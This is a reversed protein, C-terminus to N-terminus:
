KRKQQRKMAENEVRKRLNDMWASAVGGGGGPGSKPPNTKALEDLKDAHARIWRSELIGLTSNTIFYIVLGSPANYMMVPFMVVTMIKVMKQQMEQEPTLASSPPPTLYKQQVFFVLGMVLPLVNLGTIHGLLPISLVSKGFYVFHDAVSLDALFDWRGGTAAQFVGFYGPEHRLEFSFYLMAYLAFWIPSQLFMPLCGLMGSYNVKEDKMLQLMEAQLKKPDDKFKERLKAQKPALGAMQKSFRMLGIQSRRTVPHLVARVCVVLLMISIAWDGIIGHVFTLFWLLGNALWQFTCCACPGGLNYIVVQDLGLAKYRPAGPTVLQQRGLPGAYASFSLDASAGAKVEVPASTLQLLLKASAADGSTGRVVAHVEAGLPFGKRLPSQTFNQVNAAAAQDDVLPSIAFAFYRSTQALWVLEGAGNKYLDPNPWLHDQRSGVVQDIIAARGALKADAEVFQRSPDRTPDQLYGFRVRRMDLGYGSIDEHLEIPGYQVWELRLDRGSLNEVSQRVAISFSGPTQEYRRRIKLVPADAEDAVTAEFEGMGVERWVPAAATGYLDVLEGDIIVARASLSTLVEVRGDPYTIRQAQQVEYHQTKAVTEFYDAMTITQVGAGLLTFEVRAKAPGGPTLEGMVALPAPPVAQPMARLGRKPTLAPAPPQAPATTADAPTGTATTEPAASVSPMQSPGDAESPPHDGPQDSSPASAPETNAAVGSGAATTAQAPSAPKSTRTSNVFGAVIVGAGAIGVLIPM